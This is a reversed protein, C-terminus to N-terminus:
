CMGVSGALWTCPHAFSSCRKSPQGSFLHLPQALNRLDYLHVRHDACGVALLNEQQRGLQVGCVNAQLDLQAVSDAQQTSWLQVCTLLTDSLM